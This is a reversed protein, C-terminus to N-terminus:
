VVEFLAQKIQKLLTLKNEICSRKVAMLSVTAVIGHYKMLFNKMRKDFPNILVDEHPTIEELYRIIGSMKNDNTNVDVIKDNYIYERTDYFYSVEKQISFVNYMKSLKNPEFEDDDELFALFKM